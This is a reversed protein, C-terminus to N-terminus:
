AISYGGDVPLTQGTVYRAGASALFLVVPAVDAPTGVRGMPTRALQPDRIAPVGLMRATMATEIIGPAVANVRIGDRAWAAALTKTMQVVGAKAAGYGPVFTIGFYSAMSALNVVCGGRAALKTRCAHALRFAAFLNIRVSAEFSEPTWADHGGPLSEGANNVLVDLAPLSEALAEIAATDELDLSRYTFRSLGADYDAAAARRGTITVNAGADAFASAIGLGIGGSGGTVLVDTGTFDFRVSV